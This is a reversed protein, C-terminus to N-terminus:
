RAIDEKIHDTLRTEQRMCDPGCGVEYQRHTDTMGGALALGFACAHSKAAVAAADGLTTRAGQRSFEGADGDQNSTVAFTKM